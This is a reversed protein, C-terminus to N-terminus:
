FSVVAAGQQLAIRLNAYLNNSEGQGAGAGAGEKQPKDAVMAETTVLLGAVSAADELATRVVKAPDIVGIKIGENRCVPELEDLDRFTELVFLDVGAEALAAEIRAFFEEGPREWAPKHLLVFTHVVDPNRAIVERFYDAQAAGIRGTRREELKGYGTEPLM